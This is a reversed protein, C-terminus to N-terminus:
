WTSAERLGIYSHGSPLKRKNKKGWAWCGMVAYTHGLALFIDLQAFIYNLWLFFAISCLRLM